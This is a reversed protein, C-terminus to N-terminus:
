VENTERRIEIKDIEEKSSVLVLRLKEVSELEITNPYSRVDAPVMPGVPTTVVYGGEVEVLFDFGKCTKNGVDCIAYECVCLCSEMLCQEDIHALEGESDSRLFWGEPPYVILSASIEEKVYDIKNIVRKLLNEALKIEEKQSTGWYLKSLLLVILGIVVLGALVTITLNWLVDAKKNKM